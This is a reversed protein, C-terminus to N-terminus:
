NRKSTTGTEAWCADECEKGVRREESRMLRRSMSIGAVPSPFGLILLMSKAMSKVHKTQALLWAFQVSVSHRKSPNRLGVVQCLTILRKIQAVGWSTLLSWLMRLRHAVKPLFCQLIM